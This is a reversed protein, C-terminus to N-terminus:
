RDTAMATISPSGRIEVSCFTLIKFKVDAARDVKVTTRGHREEAAFTAQKMEHFSLKCSLVTMVQCISKTLTEAGSFILEKSQTGQWVRDEAQFVSTLYM